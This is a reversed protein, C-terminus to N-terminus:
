HATAVLDKNQVTESINDSTKLNVATAHSQVCGKQV